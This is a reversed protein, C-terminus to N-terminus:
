TVLSFARLSRGLGYIMCLRWEGGFERAVRSSGLDYMTCRVEYMPLSQRGGGGAARAGEVPGDHTNYMTWLRCWGGFERRLRRIGGFRVDYMTCRVDYMPLDRRGGGGTTRTTCRFDYMTCLCAGDAVTRVNSWLEARTEAGGFERALAPVEWITRRVDYRTCLCVKDAVAARQAHARLPATTRTTCRGYAAGAALSAAYGGFEGLDYITFRVEYM